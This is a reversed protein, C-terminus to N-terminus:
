KILSDRLARRNIKGTPTIPLSDIVKVGGRIYKNEDVQRNVFDSIEDLNVSTPDINEKLVIFATAHEIDEEHPKGTHSIFIVDIFLIM